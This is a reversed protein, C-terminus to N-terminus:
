MIPSLVFDPQQEDGDPSDPHQEAIKTLLRLIDREAVAVSAVPNPHLSAGRTDGAVTPFLYPSVAFVGTTEIAPPASRSARRISERFSSVLEGSHHGQTVFAVRAPRPEILLAGPPTLHQAIVTRLHGISESTVSESFDTYTCFNFRDRISQDLTITSSIDAWPDLSVDKDLVILTTLRQPDIEGLCGLHSQVPPSLEPVTRVTAELTRWTAVYLERETEQAPNTSGSSPYAQLAFATLYARTHAAEATGEFSLSLLVPRCISLLPEDNVRPQTRCAVASAGLSEETTLPNSTQIAQVPLTISWELIDIAGGDGNFRLDYSGGAVMGETWGSETLDRALLTVAARYNSALAACTPRDSPAVCEQSHLGEDAYHAARIAMDRAAGTNEIPRDRLYLESLLAAREAATLPDLLAPTDSLTQHTVGEARVGIRELLQRSLDSTTKDTHTGTAPPSLQPTTSCGVFLLMIFALTLTRYRAGHRSFCLSKM